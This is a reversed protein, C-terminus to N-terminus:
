SVTGLLYPLLKQGTNLGPCCCCSTIPEPWGGAAVPTPAPAPAAPQVPHTREVKGRGGALEGVRQHEPMQRRLEAM